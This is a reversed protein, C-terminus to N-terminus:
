GNSRNKDRIVGLFDLILIRIGIISTYDIDGHERLAKLHTIIEQKKQRDVDLENLTEYALTEIETWAVEKQTKRAMNKVM